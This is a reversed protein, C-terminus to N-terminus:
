ALVIEHRSLREFGADTVLYNHEIRIGGVGDVYLGPELTVVDGALLTETSHRVFYPAEPHSLGLGHGAHHPFFQAVGAREFAGRVADYVTQCPAGARLAREGARMAAVCQDYLRQQDATPKGGVVLTNTFDSRYGDIVVSYDLILMDGDALVRDTPPGGRRASGPSVAFDGYVIVAEGAAKECAASVGLYVDLETMGSRVDSRAWAQGAEGARMCRQLLQIEDHDKQRRLAAITETVAPALPDALGDHIRPDPNDRLPPAERLILRRPGRAPSQGDYWKIVQREDVHASEVSKPLRNDHYLTTHGDLRLLLLGGFDGGLSYPDVSFGALYRLHIPDALLLPGDARGAIQELFRQRRRRCGEASLM